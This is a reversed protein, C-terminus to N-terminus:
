SAAKSYYKFTNKGQAKAIYMADDSRKLLDELNDGDRPYVAVGISVTVAVEHGQLQYPRSVAQLIRHAVIGADEPQKLRTLLITFEDGGLRAIADEASSLVHRGITDSGRLTERLRTSIEKLLIDGADHGFTDNVRKFGDLDLFLIALQEQYRKAQAIAKRAQETYIDRKSLGTLGDYLALHRVQREIQKRETIDRMNVVIGHVAPHSLLNTAAAELYRRGTEPHDCEFEVPQASGTAAVLARAPQSRHGSSARRPGAL